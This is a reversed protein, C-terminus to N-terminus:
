PRTDERITTTSTATYTDRDANWDFTIPGLDVPPFEYGAAILARIDDATMGPRLTVRAEIRGPEITDDPIIPVGYLSMPKWPEGTPNPHLWSAVDAALKDITAQPMRLEDPRTLAERRMREVTPVIAALTKLPDAPAIDAPIKTASAALQELWARTNHELIRAHHETARDIITSIEAPMPEGDIWSSSQKGNQILAALPRPCGPTTM